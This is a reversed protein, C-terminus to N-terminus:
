FNFSGCWLGCLSDKMRAAVNDDMLSQHMKQSCNSLSQDSSALICVQYIHGRCMGREVSSKNLIM